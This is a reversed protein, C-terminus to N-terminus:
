LVQKVTDLIFIKLCTMKQIKEDPDISNVLVIVIKLSVFVIKKLNYVIVEYYSCHVMRMICQISMHAKHFIRYPNVRLTGIVVAASSLNESMKGLKRFFILYSIKHSNDALLCNEHFIM